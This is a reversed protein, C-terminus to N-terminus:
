VGSVVVALSRRRPGDFECLYVGQGSGLAM